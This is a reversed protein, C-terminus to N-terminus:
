IARDTHRVKKFRPDGELYEERRFFPKTELKYIKIAIFSGDPTTARFVNAEKGTSIPYDVTQVLGKKMLGHLILLTKKDFVESEIKFREKLQHEEKPPKKKGM